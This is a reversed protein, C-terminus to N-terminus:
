KPHRLSSVGHNSSASPSTIFWPQLSRLATVLLTTATQGDMSIVGPITKGAHIAQMVRAAAQDLGPLELSDAPQYQDPDLYGRASEVDRIGRRMLAQVVLPHGGVLEPLGSPITSQPAELWEAM